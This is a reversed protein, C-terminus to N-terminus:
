LLGSKKLHYNALSPPLHHISDTSKLQKLQGPQQLAPLQTIRHCIHGTKSQKSCTSTNNCSHKQVSHRCPKSYRPLCQIQSLGQEPNDSLLLFCINCSKFFTGNSLAFHVVSWKYVRTHSVAIVLLHDNGLILTFWSHNNCTGNTSVYNLLETNGLVM